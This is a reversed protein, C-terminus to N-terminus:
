HIMLAGARGKPFFLGLLLAWANNRILYIYPWYRVLFHM